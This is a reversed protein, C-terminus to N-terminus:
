KLLREVTKGIKQLVDLYAEGPKLHSTYGAIFSYGDKKADPTNIGGAQEDLYSSGGEVVCVIRANNKGHFKKFNPDEPLHELISIGQKEHSFDAPRSVAILDSIYRLYALLSAYPLVAKVILTQGAGNVTDNACIIPCALVAGSITDLIYTHNSIMHAHTTVDETNVQMPFVAGGVKGKSNMLVFTPTYSGTKERQRLLAYYDNASFALGDKKGWKDFKLSAVERLLHHTARAGVSGGVLRVDPSFFQKLDKDWHKRFVAKLVAERKAHPVEFPLQPIEGQSKALRQRRELLIHPVDRPLVLKSSSLAIAM